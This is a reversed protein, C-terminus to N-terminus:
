RELNTKRTMKSVRCWLIQLENVPLKSNSMERKLFWSLDNNEPVRGNKM